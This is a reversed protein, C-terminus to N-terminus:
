YIDPKINLKKRCSGNNRDSSISAETRPGEGFNANPMM